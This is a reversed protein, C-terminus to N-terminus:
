VRGAAIQHRGESWWGWMPQLSVAPTSSIRLNKAVLRLYITTSAPWFFVRCGPYTCSGQFALFRRDFVETNWYCITVLSGEGLSTESSNLYACNEHHWIILNGDCRDLSTLKNLCQFLQASATASEPTFDCTAFAGGICRVKTQEEPSNHRRSDPPFLRDDHDMSVGCQLCGCHSACSSNARLDHGLSLWTVGAFLHGHRIM